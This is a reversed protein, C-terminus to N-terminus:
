IRVAPDSRDAGVGRSVIRGAVCGQAYTSGGVRLVQDKGDQVLGGWVLGDRYIAQATSRPYAVGANDTYPNGASYGDRKFWMSMNNINILAKDGFVLDQAIKASGARFTEPERSAAPAALVGLVLLATALPFITKKM